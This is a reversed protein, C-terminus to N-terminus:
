TPQPQGLVDDTADRSAYIPIGPDAGPPAPLPMWYTPPAGHATMSHSEDGAYWGEDEGSDWLGIAVHVETAWYGAPFWLLVHTGDKPASEIPQWESM